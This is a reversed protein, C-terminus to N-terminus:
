FAGEWEAMAAIVGTLVLGATALLWRRHASLSRQAHAGIAEQDKPREAEEGPRADAQAQVPAPNEDRLMRVQAVFRYGRKPMTEIYRQGNESDGLAKRLHSVYWSLNGEEVFTDSWVAKILEDKGLLRGHHEVLVLLLDFAKPTLPVVEGDRLLLREAIDLRFPGFEYFHNPQLSM